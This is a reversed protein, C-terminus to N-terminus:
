GRYCRALRWTANRSSATRRPKTSKFKDPNPMNAKLADKMGVIGDHRDLMSEYAELYRDLSQREPGALKAEFEASTM